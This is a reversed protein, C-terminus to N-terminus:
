PRGGSRPESCSEGWDIMAWAEDGGRNWAAFEAQEEPDFPIPGREAEPVVAVKVEAGDPLAAGPELVVVGDKVWGRVLQVSEGM